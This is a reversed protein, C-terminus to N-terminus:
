PNTTTYHGERVIRALGERFATAGGNAPHRLCDFKGTYATQLACLAKQGVAIVKAGKFMRLVQYLVEMGALVEARTPTRNTYLNTTEHPHWAFANWLVTQNAIGNEHLAKWVITASPESWPKDRHTLRECALRPIAGNIILRENTFPVGSFHCGQYGPAEGVLLFRPECDFHAALRRRRRLAATDRDCDLPDSHRWPNFVRPMEVSAIIDILKSVDAAM